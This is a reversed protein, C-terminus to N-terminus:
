CFWEKCVNETINTLDELSGKEEFGFGKSNLYEIIEKGVDRLISGQAFANYKALIKGYSVLLAEYLTKEFDKM